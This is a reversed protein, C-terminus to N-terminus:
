CVIALTSFEAVLDGVERIAGNWAALMRSRGTEVLYCKQIRCDHHSEHAKM